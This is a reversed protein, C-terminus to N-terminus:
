LALPIWLGNKADIVQNSVPVARCGIGTAKGESSLYITFMLYVAEDAYQYVPMLCNQQFVALMNKYWDDDDFTPDYTNVVEEGNEWLIIGAGERGYIPKEWVQSLGYSIAEEYTCYTQPILTEILRQTEPDFRGSHIGEWLFAFFGKNQIIESRIPPVRFLKGELELQQLYDWPRAAPIVSLEVDSVIEGGDEILWENPYHLFLYKVVNGNPTMLAVEKAVDTELILNDTYIFEAKGGFQQFYGMRADFSLIDEHAGVYPFSFYVVDVGHQYDPFSKQLYEIFDRTQQEGMGKNPCQHGFHEAVLTNFVFSESWFGPTASNAELVKFDSLQFQDNVFANPNVAIDLRMESPETKSSLFQPIYDEPYGWDLIEAESLYQFFQATSTGVEWFKEGAKRIAQCFNPSVVLPDFVVYPRRDAGGGEFMTLVDAPLNSYAEQSLRDFFQKKALSNLAYNLEM